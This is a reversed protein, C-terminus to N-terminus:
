SHAPTGDDSVDLYSEDSENSGQGDSPLIMLKRNPGSGISKTYVRDDKDLAMHIIKRDYASKYNLVIPKKTEFVKKSLDQAMERLEVERNKRIAGADIFIRFPLERKLHRPKKRLLHELSEALKINRELLAAVEDNKINIVLRDEEQWADMEIPSDVLYGCIGACFSKLEEILVETEAATLPTQDARDQQDHDNQSHQQRSRGGSNHRSSRSDSRNSSSRPRSEAGSRKPWATIEVKAGGLLGFFKGATQSIVRYEIRDSTTNLNSAAQVIALDLSKAQIRVEQSNRNTHM